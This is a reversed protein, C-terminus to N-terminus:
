FNYRSSFHIVRDIENLRKQLTYFDRMVHEFPWNTVRDDEAGYRKIVTEWFDGELIKREAHIAKYGLFYTYQSTGEAISELAKDITENETRRFQAMVEAVDVDAPIEGNKQYAKLMKELATGKEESM